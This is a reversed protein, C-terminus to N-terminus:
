EFLPQPLLRHRLLVELDHTTRKLGEVCTIDIPVDREPVRVALEQGKPRLELADGIAAVLPDAAEEAVHIFVPGFEPDIRQLKMLPVLPDHHYPAYASQPSSGADIDAVYGPEHGLEAVAQDRAQCAVAIGLRGQTCCVPLLCVARRAAVLLSTAPSRPPRACAAGPAHATSGSVRRAAKAASEEVPRWTHEGSRGSAASNAGGGPPRTAFSGAQFPPM